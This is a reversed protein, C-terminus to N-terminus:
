KYVFPWAIDEREGGRSIESGRRGMGRKVDKMVANMYVNLLWLGLICGQIAGSDIRFCESKGAKVRVCGLRDDYMSKNGRLTKGDLDYMNLLQGLAERNVRDYANELKKFGEYVICKKEHKRM